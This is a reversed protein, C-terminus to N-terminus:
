VITPHFEGHLYFKRGALPLWFDVDQNPDAHVLMWDGGATHQKEDFFTGSKRMGYLNAGSSEWEQLSVWQPKAVKDKVSMPLWAGPAGPTVDKANTHKEFYSDVYGLLTTASWRLGNVSVMEEVKGEADVGLVPHTHWGSNWWDDASGKVRMKWGGAASTKSGCSWLCAQAGPAWPSTDIETWVMSNTPHLEIASHFFHVNGGTYGMVYIYVVGPFGVFMEFELNEDLGCVFGTMGEPTCNILYLYRHCAMTTTSLFLVPPSVSPLVKREGSTYGSLLVSHGTLSGFPIPLRTAVKLSNMIRLLPSAFASMMLWGSAVGILPNKTYGHNKV